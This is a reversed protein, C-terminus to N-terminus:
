SKNEFDPNNVIKSTPTIYTITYLSAFDDYLKDFLARCKFLNLQGQGGMQLMKSVSEFKKLVDLLDTIASDQAPTPILDVVEKPFMSCSPLIHERLRSWKLLMMFTSYWRTVNKREPNLATLTRLISSNKLTKLEGMLLDIQRVISANEDNSSIIEKVALNLRHSACGIMPIGTRKSLKRNTNCNDAIFFDIKKTINNIDINDLGYVHLVDLIIDFWDAASFGFKKEDDIIDAVFETNQDVDEAVHCSLLVEVVKETKENYWIAFIASYHESGITWGDFILGFSSPLQKEIAKRMKIQLLKMYKKLTKVCIEKLSTYKRTLKSECFTFPLNQDIIWSIWGHINRAKPGTSQIYKNMPGNVPGQNKYRRIVEMYDDHEKLTHDKLNKYGRKMDQARIMGCGSYSCRHRMPDDEIPIWFCSYFDKGSYENM